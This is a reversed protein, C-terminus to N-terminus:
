KVKIIGDSKQVITIGFAGSHGSTFGPDCGMSCSVDYDVQLDYPISTARRIQAVTFSSGEHVYGWVCVFERKFSPSTLKLHEIEEKSYLKDVACEYNLTIRKYLCKDDPEKFLRHMTSDIQGPTNCLVIQADTKVTTNKFTHDRTIRKSLLQVEGVAIQPEALIDDPAKKGTLDEFDYESVM